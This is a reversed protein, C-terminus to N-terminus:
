ELPSFLSVSFMYNHQVQLTLKLPQVMEVISQSLHDGSKVDVFYPLLFVLMNYPFRDFFEVFEQRVQGLQTYYNLWKIHVQTPFILFKILYFFQDGRYQ